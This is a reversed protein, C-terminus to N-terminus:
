GQSVVNEVRGISAYRILRASYTLLGIDDKKAIGAGDERRPRPYMACVLAMWEDSVKPRNDIAINLM